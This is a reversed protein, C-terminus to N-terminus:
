KIEEMKAFPTPNITVYRNLIRQIKSLRITLFRTTSNEIKITIPTIPAAKVINKM